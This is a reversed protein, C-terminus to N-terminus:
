FHKEIENIAIVHFIVKGDPTYQPNMTSFLEDFLQQQEENNLVQGNKIAMSQALPLMFRDLIEFKHPMKEIDFYSDFFKELISGLSYNTFFSPIEEVSIQENNIKKICFGLRNFYPLLEDLHTFIRVDVNIIEPFILKESYSFEDELRKILMEYIIRTHARHQDIIMLGSKVPLVLFRNNLQVINHTDKYELNLTNSETKVEEFHKNLINETEFFNKWASNTKNEFPNYDPNISIKPQTIPKQKQMQPLQISSELNFEINPLISTKGLTQKIASELIQAVAREDEFKIETKTPHINVDIFKPNCTFYIFFSPTTEPLLLNEYANLIVRYLLNHKIFRNNVFFYQQKNKKKANEPKGIFGHINIISTETNIDLLESSISKGFVHIIRQKLTSTTLNYIETQNNVLNFSIETHSLSVKIFEDVIYRLELDNSKLFRRRAPINYFLNKVTVSTGNSCVTPTQKILKSGHIEVFTGIEDNERKTILEVQAVSAISALAEGRFGFTSIAFLDNADSIKSTAHREFALRADVESMGIGDDIVQILTKGADKIVIKINKAFADISNELLEKVVSSPRQVVEGAAIQNAVSDPLIKIVQSIM